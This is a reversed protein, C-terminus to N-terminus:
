QSAFSLAALLWFVIAAIWIWNLVIAATALGRGSLRGGSEDIEKRSMYGLILGVIPVLFSLIFAVLAMTSATTTATEPVTGAFSNTSSPSGLNTGCKSCFDGEGAPLGCSPCFNPKSTPRNTSITSVGKPEKKSVFQLIAIVIVAFLETGALLSGAWGDASFNLLSVLPLSDLGYDNVLGYLIYAVASLAPLILPWLAFSPKRLLVFIAVGVYGVPALLWMLNTFSALLDVDYFIQGGDSFFTFLSVVNLFAYVSAIILVAIQRPAPQAKTVSM